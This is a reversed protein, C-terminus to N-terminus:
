RHCNGASLEFVYTAVQIQLKSISKGVYMSHSFSLLLWFSPVTFTCYLCLFIVSPHLKWDTLYFSFMLNMNSHYVCLFDRSMKIEEIM